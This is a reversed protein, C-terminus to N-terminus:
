WAPVMGVGLIGSLGGSAPSAVSPVTHTPGISVGQVM